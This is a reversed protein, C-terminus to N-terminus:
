VYGWNETNIQKNRTHKNKIEVLQKTSNWNDDMSTAM